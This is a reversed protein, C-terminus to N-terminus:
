RRRLTSSFGLARGAERLRAPDDAKLGEVLAALARVQDPPFTRVCGYDYVVVRGEGTFAYNGSHPDGHFHGSRYLTGVSFSFLAEGAADRLAQSPDSALFAEFGAGPCWRTTLVGVGCWDREVAPVSIIPDAAFLRGFRAQRDAELAFDCEEVFATQAEQVVELVNTGLGPLLLRTLGLGVSASSFDAKM